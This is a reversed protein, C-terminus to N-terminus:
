IRISLYGTHLTAVVWMGMHMNSCCFLTMLVFDNELFLHSYSLSFSNEQLRSSFHFSCRDTYKASVGLLMKIKQRGVLLSFDREGGVLSRKQKLWKM